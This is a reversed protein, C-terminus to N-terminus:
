HQVRAAIFEEDTLGAARAAKTEVPSMPAPDAAATKAAAAIAGPPVIVPASAVYKQFAPLDKTALELAWDRMAPAVKGAESAAAVAQEAAGSQAAAQLAAVDAQLAQFTAIPVYQAPDPKSKAAAAIETELEAIRAAHTDREGAMQNAAAAVAESDADDPLGLAARIEALTEDMVTEQQHDFAAAIRGMDIAPSKVLGANIITTVQGTDKRALFTPSLYPYHDDRVMQAGVETWTVKAWIGDDRAELANIWGAAPTPQGTPNLSSHDFDLPMRRAGLLAMSRAVVAPADDLRYPGRQDILKILGAPMLRVWEPPEGSLEVVSAAAILAVTTLEHHAEPAIM